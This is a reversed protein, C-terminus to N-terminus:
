SPCLYKTQMVSAVLSNFFEIVIRFNYRVSMQDYAKVLRTYLFLVSLNGVVNLLNRM